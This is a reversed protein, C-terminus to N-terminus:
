GRGVFPMATAMVTMSLTNSSLPLAAMYRLAAGVDDVNMTPEPTTTGNAQLVGQPMRETLPTAANGIDIQGCAIHYRRGDLAASKTLGTVAHKTATYPMSHPRPAMASISGNNVIRGGQPNQKKMLRFAARICFFMGTLNTDVVARWQDASLDELPIAPAGIGANNFLFDLRGYRAEIAAFLADVQNEDAIDAPHVYSEINKSRALTATEDLAARRRGCLVLTGGDEGLALAAARGIGSGAGTVLSIKNM